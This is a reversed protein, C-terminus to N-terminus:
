VRPAGVSLRDVGANTRSRECGLRDARGDSRAHRVTSDAARQGARVDGSVSVSLRDVRRKDARCDLAAPQRLRDHRAYDLVAHRHFLDSRDAMRASLRGTFQIPM